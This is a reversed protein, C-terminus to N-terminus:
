ARTVANQPKGELFARINAITVQRLRNQAESTWWGFDPTLYAHELSSFKRRWEVDQLEDFWVTIEGRRCREYCSNLDVLEGRSGNLLVAGKKMTNIFSSNMIGRTQASLSCHLSVVDCHRVMEPLQMLRVGTHEIELKRTRSVYFVRMGFAKAIEAVKCGIAGLGVIGLSKGELELGLFGDFGWGGQKTFSLAAPIKRYISILVGFALEAVSSAAYSPVHTLTIHRCKIPELNFHFCDTHMTGIYKLTSDEFLQDPYHDCVRTILADAGQLSEKGLQRTYEGDALVVEVADALERLQGLFEDGLSDKRFDYVVIKRFKM